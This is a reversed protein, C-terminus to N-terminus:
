NRRFRRAAPGSRGQTLESLADAGGVARGSPMDLTAFDFGEQDSASAQDIVIRDVPEDLAALGCPRL